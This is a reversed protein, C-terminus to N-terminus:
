ALEIRELAELVVHALDLFAELAAQRQLAVVVDLDPVLELDEFDRLYRARESGRSPASADRAVHYSAPCGLCRPAQPDRLLDVLLKGLHDAGLDLVRPDAEHGYRADLQRGVVRDGADIEGHQG